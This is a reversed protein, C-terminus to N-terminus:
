SDRHYEQLTLDACLSYVRCLGYMNGNFELMHHYKTMLSLSNLCCIHPDVCYINCNHFIINLSFRRPNLDLVWHFINSYWRRILSALLVDERWTYNSNWWWIVRQYDLMAFNAIWWKYINKGNFWLKDLMKLGNVM